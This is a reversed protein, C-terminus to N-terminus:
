ITRWTPNNPNRVNIYSIKGDYKQLLELCVREKDRIDESTGLSVEVGNKLELTTSGPDAAKVNKVQDKLETTMSAVVDIACNVSEDTCYKGIEPKLSPSVDVIHMVGEVDDYIQQNIKKGAESNKDPVPMLWMHDKSIAWNRVTGTTMTSGQTTTKSNQISTPVEVIATITREKVNLVLTNPFARVIEVDEIWADLKLRTKIIETDVKLLTDEDSVNALKLMEDETLHDAGNIQVRTIPFADTYCLYFYGAGASLLILIILTIIFVRLAKIKRKKKKREKTNIKKDLDVNGEKPKEEVVPIAQTEQKEDLLKSVEDFESKVTPKYQPEEIVPIEQALMKQKQQEQKIEKKIQRKTKKKRVTPRKNKAVM